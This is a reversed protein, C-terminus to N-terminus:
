RRPPNAATPGEGPPATSQPVTTSRAVVSSASWASIVASIQDLPSHWLASAERIAAAVAARAQGVWPTIADTIRAPLWSPWGADATDANAELLEDIRLADPDYVLVVSGCDAVARIERIAPHERFLSAITRALEEARHPPEVRMRTRGRVAHVLHFRLPAEAALANGSMVM